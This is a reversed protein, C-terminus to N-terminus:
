TMSRNQSGAASAYKAERQLWDAPVDTIKEAVIAVYYLPEGGTSLRHVYRLKALSVAVSERLMREILLRFGSKDAEDLFRDRLTFAVLGGEAIYNFANAFASPPIDGFGLAAVSTLCNLRAAILARETAPDPDCLDAVLYADYLGPRDREAAERAEDLIDLGVFHDVGLKQLEAAVMGNGAGLDLVRLESAQRGNQGLVEDLLGCVTSPSGCRLEEHFLREYLGPIAYIEGYDHFRVRKRPSEGVTV